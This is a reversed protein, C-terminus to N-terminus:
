PTRRVKGRRAATPSPALLATLDCGTADLAFSLLLKVLETRSLKLGTTRIHNECAEIRGILAEPLRFALQTEIQSM